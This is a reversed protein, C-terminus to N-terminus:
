QRFTHLSDYPSQLLIGHHGWRRRWRIADVARSENLHAVTGDRNTLDFQISQWCFTGWSTHVASLRNSHEKVDGVDDGFGDVGVLACLSDVVAALESPLHMGAWAMLLRNRSSIRWDVNPAPIKKRKEANVDEDPAILNGNM